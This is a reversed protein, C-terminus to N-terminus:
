VMTKIRVTLMMKPQFSHTANDGGGRERAEESTAAQLEVLPRLLVILERFNSDNCNLQQIQYDQLFSKQSMQLFFQQAVKRIFNLPVTGDM